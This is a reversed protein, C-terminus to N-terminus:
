SILTPTLPSTSLFEWTCINSKCRSGRQSCVLCPAWILLLSFFPTALCSKFTTLNVEVDTGIENFVIREEEETSNPEGKTFPASSLILPTSDVVVSLVDVDLMGM